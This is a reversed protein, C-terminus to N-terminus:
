LDAQSMAIVSFIKDATTSFAAGIHRYEKNFLAKRYGRNAVGDDIILNLLALEICNKDEALYTTGLLEIMSGKGKRCYRQIRDIFTSGDSGQHGTNNTQMIDKVHDQAASLLGPHRDFPRLPTQNM